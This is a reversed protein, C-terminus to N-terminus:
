LPHQLPDLNPSIVQPDLDCNEQIKAMLRVFEKDRFHKDLMSSADKVYGSQVHSLLVDVYQAYTPLNMEECSKHGPVARTLAYKWYALTLKHVDTVLTPSVDNPHEQIFAADMTLAMRTFVPIQALLQDYLGMWMRTFIYGKGTDPELYDKKLYGSLVDFGAQTRLAKDMVENQMPLTILAEFVKVSRVRDNAFKPYSKMAMYPAYSHWYDFMASEGAQTPLKQLASVYFHQSVDSLLSDVPGATGFRGIHALGRLWSQEHGTGYADGYPPFAAKVYINLSLATALSVGILCVLGIALKKLM